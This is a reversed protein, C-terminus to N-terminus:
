VKEVRRTKRWETVAEELTPHRDYLRGERVRQHIVIKVRKTGGNVIEVRVAKDHAMFVLETLLNGDFTAFDQWTNVCWGEGFPMVGKTGPIHHEGGFLQAFFQTADEKTMEKSM